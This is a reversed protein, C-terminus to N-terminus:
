FIKFLKPNKLKSAENASVRARGEERGGAGRGGGAGELWNNGKDRKLSRIEM